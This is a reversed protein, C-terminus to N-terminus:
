GARQAVASGAETFYEETVREGDTAVQIWGALAHPLGDRLYRDDLLGISLWGNFFAGTDLDIHNSHECPEAVPMHGRVIKKGKWDPSIDYTWILEHVPHEEIPLHVDRGIGGHIFLFSETQHFVRLSELFKRHTPPIGGLRDYEEDAAVPGPNGMGRVGTRFAELLMAEHNGLLFVWDPHATKARALADVTRVSSPGRDVYDGLFVVPLGLDELIAVTRAAALHCGHIDGVAAILDRSRLEDPLTHLRGM